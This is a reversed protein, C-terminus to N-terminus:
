FNNKAIGKEDLFFLFSIRFFGRVSKECQLFRIHFNMEGATRCDGHIIIENTHCHSVNEAPIKSCIVHSHVDPTIMDSQADIFASSVESWTRTASHNTSSLDNRLTCQAGTISIGGELEALSYRGDNKGVEPM